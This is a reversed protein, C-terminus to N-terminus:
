QSTVFFGSLMYNDNTNIIYDVAKNLTEIEDKYKVQYFGGHINQYFSIYSGTPMYGDATPLSWYAGARTGSIGWPTISVFWWIGILSLAIAKYKAGVKVLLAASPIGIFLSFWIIYKPSSLNRFYFLAPLLLLILVLMRKDTRVIFAYGLAGLFLISPCFPYIFYALLLKINTHMKFSVSGIDPIHHIFVLFYVVAFCFVLLISLILEKIILKRHNRNSNFLWLFAFWFPVLLIADARSFISCVLFIVAPFLRWIKRLTLFSLSLTFFTFSFAVENGYTFTIILPPMSIFVVWSYLYPIHFARKLLILLSTFFIVGMFMSMSNMFAYINGGFLKYFLSSVIYYFSFLHDRYFGPGSLPDLITNNHVQYLIKAAKSGQDQEFPYELNITFGLVLMTAIVFLMLVMRDRPIARFSKSIFSKCIHIAGYM